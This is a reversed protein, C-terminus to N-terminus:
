NFRRRLSAVAQDYSAMEGTLRAAIQGGEALALAGAAEETSDAAGELGADSRAASFRTELWALLDRRFHNIETQVREDLTQTNVACTVCLCLTNCNGLAERYLDLFALIAEASTDTTSEIRGLETLIQERYRAVLTAILDAKAPFHHHISAKRIGVEHSLDAYSFGDIGRERVAQEAAELLLTRTDAM